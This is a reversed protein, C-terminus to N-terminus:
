RPCLGLGLSENGLTKQSVHEQSLSQCLRLYGYVCTMDEM